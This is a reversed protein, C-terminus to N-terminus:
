LQSCRTNTRGPFFYADLGMSYSREIYSFGKLIYDQIHIVNNSTFINEFYDGKWMSVAIDLIDVHPGFVLDEPSHESTYWELM